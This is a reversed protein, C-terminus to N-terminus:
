RNNTNAQDTFSKNAPERKALVYASDVNGNAIHRINDAKWQNWNRSDATNSTKLSIKENGSIDFGEIPRMYGERHLNLYFSTAKQIKDRQVGNVIHKARDLDCVGGKREVIDEYEAQSAPAWLEGGMTRCFERLYELHHEEPFFQFSNQNNVTSVDIDEVIATLLKNSKLYKATDNKILNVWKPNMKRFDRLDAIAATVEGTRLVGRQRSAPFSEGYTMAGHVKDSPIFAFLYGDRYWFDSIFGWPDYENGTFSGGRIGTNLAFPTEAKDDGLRKIIADKVAKLFLVSKDGARTSHKELSGLYIASSLHDPLEPAEFV